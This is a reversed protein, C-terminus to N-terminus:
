IAVASKVYDGVLKFSDPSFFPFNSYSRSENIFCFIFVSLSGLLSNGWMPEVVLDYLCRSFSFSNLM